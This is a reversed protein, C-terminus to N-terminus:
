YYNGFSPFSYEVTRSIYYNNRQFIHSKSRQLLDRLASLLTLSAIITELLQKTSMYDLTDITSEFSLRNTNLTSQSPCIIGDNKAVGSTM